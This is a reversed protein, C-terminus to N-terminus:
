WQYGLPGASTATVAFTATGGGIVTLNTPQNVITPLSSPVSYSTENSFVSEVLLDDYATGAFYYTTGEQLNTVTCTLNTGVDVRTSYAGSATGYYVNYGAAASPSPSWGLTVSQVASATPSWALSALILFSGAVAKRLTARVCSRSLAFM